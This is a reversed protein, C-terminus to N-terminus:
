VWLIQSLIYGFSELKPMLRNMAASARKEGLEESFQSV